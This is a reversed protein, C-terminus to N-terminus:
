QQNVEWSDINYALRPATMGPFNLTGFGGPPYTISPNLGPQVMVDVSGAIAGYWNNSPQLQATVAVSFLFVPETISGVDGKPAFYVDGVSIIIGPGKITCKDGVTLAKQSGSTTSAVFLTNGNLDLVFEKETSGILTDGTVYVTGDLVLVPPPDTTISNKITLEGEIYIPGLSSSEGALDVNMDGYYHTADEVDELYWDSLIEPPPWSPDPYNYVIGCGECGEPPDYYDYIIGCCSETCGEPCTLEVKSLENELHKIQDETLDDNITIIHDMMGSYDGYKSAGGVYVEIETGSNDGVATSVIRYTGTLNSGEFDDISTITVDVTKGNIDSITHNHTPAGHCLVVEGDNIRWLADEVGADAAYLEDTRVEHVEGVLLGSGMYSLLPGVILGSILLLILAVVLAAGTEDGALRKIANKM